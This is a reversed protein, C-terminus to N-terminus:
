LYYPARQGVRGDLGHENALMLPSLRAGRLRVDVDLGDTSVANERIDLTVECHGGLMRVDPVFTDIEHVLQAEMNLLPIADRRMPRRKAFKTPMKLHNGQLIPLRERIDGVRAQAQKRLIGM